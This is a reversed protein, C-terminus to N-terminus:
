EDAEVVVDPNNEEFRAKRANMTDLELGEKVPWNGVSIVTQGNENKDNGGAGCGVLMGVMLLVAMVLAITRKM